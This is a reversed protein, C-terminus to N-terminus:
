GTPENPAAVVLAGRPDSFLKEGGLVAFSWSEYREHPPVSIRCGSTFEIILEGNSEARATAVRDRCIPM